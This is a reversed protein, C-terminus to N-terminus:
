ASVGAQPRAMAARVRAAGLAYADPEVPGPQVARAARVAALRQELLYEATRQRAKKAVLEADQRVFAHCDHQGDCEHLHSRRMRAAFAAEAEADAESGAAFLGLAEQRLRSLQRESALRRMVSTTLETAGQAVVQGVAEEVRARVEAEVRSVFEAEREGAAPDLRDRAALGVELVAAIAAEAARINGCVECLGGSRVRGCVACARARTQEEFEELEARRVAWAAEQRAQELAAQERREARRQEAERTVEQLRREYLRLYQGSPVKESLSSGLEIGVERRRALLDGLHEACRECPAGTDMRRGEDCRLDGCTARRPLARGILWGVPETVPRRGQEAARRRLRAGLIAMGKGPGFLGDLVHLERHVARQVTLRAALRDLRGWVMAVPALLSEWGKPVPAWVRPPGGTTETWAALGDRCADKTGDGAALFTDPCSSDHKEGRLPCGAGSDPRVTDVVKESPAPTEVRTRADEPLGPNGGAAGGSLRDSGASELDATTGWPHDTHLPSGGPREAVVAEDAESSGSEGAAVLGGAGADQETEVGVGGPREAVSSEEAGSAREGAAGAAEGEGVPVRASGRDAAAAASGGGCRGCVSEGRQGAGGVGAAVAAQDAAHAAVVPPLVLLAKGKLGSGTGRRETTAVEYGRLRSLVKAGGSVSCGLLRAVTADARGRKKPLRGGVLPVTGDERAELVLLLAALRDTAAGKDGRTGGRGALLGAGRDGPGWGPAFLVELVRLLTALERQSLALPHLADGSQRARWVAMVVCDLGTPQGWEGETVRYQLVDQEALPPLVDQRVTSEVLGLWRGLERTTIATHCSRFGSKAFVVVVALREADSLGAM